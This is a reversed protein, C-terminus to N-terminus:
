QRVRYEQDGGYLSHTVGRDEPRNADVDSDLLYLAVRGVDARWVRLHLTTAPLNIEVEVPAGAADTVLTLPLVRPDLEEVLAVQEVGGQLRQRMYGRRYLM